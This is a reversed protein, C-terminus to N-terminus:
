RQAHAAAPVPGRLAQVNALNAAAVQNGPDCRLAEQYWGIAQDLRGALWANNGLGAWASSSRPDIRLADQFMRDSEPGRGLRGLLGAMSLLYDRKLEPSPARAVADSYRVLAGPYDGERELTEALAVRPGDSGPSVALAQTFAGVNSRLVVANGATGWALWAALPVLALVARGQGQPTLGVLASGVVLALGVAAPYAHRGAFFGPGVSAIAYAPWLCLLGWLLGFALGRRDGKLFRVAAVVGALLLAAAAMAPIGTLAVEPPRLVFPPAGPLFLFRLHALGMSLVRPLDPAFPQGALQSGIVARRLLLFLLAVLVAAVALVPPFRRQERSRTLEYSGVLLPIVLASEKTLCAAAYLATLAAMRVPSWDGRWRLYALLTGLLFTAGLLEGFASIWLVAESGAPHLLFLFVLALRPLDQLEPWLRAMLRYLLVGNLLHLAMSLLHWAWPQTGLLLQASAMFLAQLPRFIPPGVLGLGASRFGWSGFAARFGGVCRSVAEPTAWLMDDSVFEGPLVWGFALLVAAAMLLYPLVKKPM